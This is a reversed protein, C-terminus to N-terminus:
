NDSGGLYADKRYSDQAISNFIYSEPSSIFSFFGSLTCKGLTLFNNLLYGTKQPEKIIGQCNSIFVKYCFVHLAFIPM